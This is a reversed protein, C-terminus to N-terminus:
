AASVGKWAYPFDDAENRATRYADYCADMLRNLANDTSREIASSLYRDRIAAIKERGEQQTPLDPNDLRVAAGSEGLCTRLVAKFEPLSPPERRDSHEIMDIARNLQAATYGVLGRSWELRAVAAGRDVKKGDVEVFQNTRYKDAFANGFLGHLRRFVHVTAADAALEPANINVINGITQM